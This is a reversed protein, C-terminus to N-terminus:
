TARLFLPVFIWLTLYPTIFFKLAGQFNGGGGLSCLGHTHSLIAKREHFTNNFTFVCQMGSRSVKNKGGKWLLDCRGETRCSSTWTWGVRSSNTSPAIMAQRIIHAPCSQRISISRYSISSTTATRNSNSTAVAAFSKFFFFSLTPVLIFYKQNDCVLCYLM